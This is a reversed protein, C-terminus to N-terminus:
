PDPSSKITMGSPTHLLSITPQDPRSTHGLLTALVAANNGKEHKLLAIHFDPRSMFSNTQSMVLVVWFSYQRSLRKLCKWIRVLQMEDQVVELSSLSDIILMCPPHHVTETDHLLEEELAALTMILQTTTRITQFKINKSNRNSFHPQNKLLESYRQALANGSHGARSFCYRVHCSGQQRNWLDVNCAQVALQLCLQSKGSGSPGTICLVHGRPLGISVSDSNSLHSNNHYEPPLSILQDLARCGTSIFNIHGRQQQEQGLAHSARSTAGLILPRTTRYQKNNSTNNDDYFQQQQLRYMGTKTQAMMAQAVQSRLTDIQSLIAAESIKNGTSSSSKNNIMLQDALAQPPRSLLAQPTTISVGDPNPPELLRKKLIPHLPISQFTPM